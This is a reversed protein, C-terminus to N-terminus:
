HSLTRQAVITLPTSTGPDNIAGGFGTPRHGVSASRRSLTRAQGQTLASSTGINAGTQDNEGYRRIGSSLLRGVDVTSVRGGSGVASRRLVGFRGDRFVPFTRATCSPPCSNCSTPVSTQGSSAGPPKLRRSAEPHRKRDLRHRALPKM